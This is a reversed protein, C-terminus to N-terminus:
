CRRSKTLTCSTTSAHRSASSRGAEATALVQEYTPAPLLLAVGQHTRLANVTEEVDQVTAQATRVAVVVDPEPPEESNACGSWALATIFLLKAYQTM